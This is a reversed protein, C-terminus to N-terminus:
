EFLLGKFVADYSEEPTGLPELPQSEFELFEDYHLDAVPTPHVQDAVEEYPFYQPSPSRASSPNSEPTVTESERKVNELLKPDISEPGNVSAPSTITKAKLTSLAKEIEEKSYKSYEDWNIGKPTNNPTQVIVV